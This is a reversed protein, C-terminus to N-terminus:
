KKEKAEKKSTEGRNGTLTRWWGSIHQQRVQAIFIGLEDQDRLQEMLQADVTRLSAETDATNERDKIKRDREIELDAKSRRTRAIAQTNAEHIQVLRAETNVQELTIIENARQLRKKDFRVRDLDRNTNALNARLTTLLIEKQHIEGQKKLTSLANENEKIQRTLDQQQMILTKEEIELATIRAKNNALTYHKKKANKYDISQPSRKAPQKAPATAPNTSSSAPQAVTELYDVEEDDTHYDVIGYAAPKAASKADPKSGAYLAVLTSYLSRETEHLTPPFLTAPFVFNGDKLKTRKHALLIRSIFLARVIDNEKEPQKLHSLETSLRTLTTHDITPKYCLDLDLLDPEDVPSILALEHSDTAGAHAAMATVRSTTAAKPITVASNSSAAEHALAADDMGVLRICSVFLLTVSTKTLILKM